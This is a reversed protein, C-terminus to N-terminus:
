LILDPFIDMGFNDTGTNNMRLSNCHQCAPNQLNQNMHKVKRPIQPCLSIM